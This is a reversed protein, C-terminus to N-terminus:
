LSRLVLGDIFVKASSTSSITVTGSRVSNTAPLWVVKKYTSTSSKTNVTGLKTSGISVAVSGCVSCTRIVLGVQKAKLGTRTLKAGSKAASAASGGYYASSSVTTWGSSRSLSTQDLPSSVCKVPTWAGVNGLGDRARVSFCYQYGKGLAVSRSTATTQTALTSDTRVGGGSFRVQRLDYNAVGNVGVDKASWKVTVSSATTSSSTPALMTSLPGTVDTAAPSPGSEILGKYPLATSQQGTLSVSGLVGVFVPNGVTTGVANDTFMFREFYIRSGDATWAPSYDSTYEADTSPVSRTTASGGKVPLTVIRFDVNDDFSFSAAALTEGSPSIAPSQLDTSGSIVSRVGGPFTVKTLRSEFTDDLYKEDTAVLSSGDPAWTAEGLGVGGPLPAANGGAAPVSWLDGVFDDENSYYTFVITSGDPSWVPDLEQGGIGPTLEVPADSGDVRQV